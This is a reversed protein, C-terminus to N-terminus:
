SGGLFLLALVFVGPLALFVFAAFVPYVGSSFEYRDGDEEDEDSKEEPSLSDLSLSSLSQTRQTCM